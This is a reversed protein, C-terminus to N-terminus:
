NAMVIQNISKPNDCYMRPSVEAEQAGIGTALVLQHCPKTSNTRGVYVLDVEEDIEKSEGM